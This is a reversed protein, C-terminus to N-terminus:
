QNERYNTHFDRLQSGRWFQLESKELITLLM